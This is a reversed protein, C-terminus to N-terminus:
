NVKAYRGNYDNIWMSRLSYYEAESLEELESVNKFYQEFHGSENMKHITKTMLFDTRKKEIINEMTHSFLIFRQSLKIMYKNQHENIKKMLDMLYQYHKDKEDAKKMVEEVNVGYDKKYDILLNELRIKETEINLLEIDDEDLWCNQRIGGNEFKLKFFRRLEKEPMPRSDEPMNMLKVEERDSAIQAEINDKPKTLRIYLSDNKFKCFEYFGEKMESEFNDIKREMKFRREM